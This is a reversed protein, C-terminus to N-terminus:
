VVLASYKVEKPTLARGPSHKPKKPPPVLKASAPNREFLGFARGYEFLSRLIALKTSITHPRKEQQILYDRWSQVDEFTVEAFIIQRNNRKQFYRAFELLTNRYTRRTEDSPSKLVFSRTLDEDTAPIGQLVDVKWEQLNNEM